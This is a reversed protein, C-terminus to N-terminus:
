RTRLSLDLIDRMRNNFEEQDQRMQNQKAELTNTRLSTGFVQSVWTTAVRQQYRDENPFLRRFRGFIPMMQDMIYIDHDRMKWDGKRNKQAKGAAGLADMLFPTGTYVPPPQQYRGTFPLDAFIQKGSWIEIPLKVTPAAGESFARLPSTPEKTYRMLDRFPLDPVWYVQNGGSKIPLRVGWGELFYDPVVGEQDSQLEMEGKLQMLRSWATPRRGLSEVLVPIINKQWRWFPIARRMNRETRTLGSPTYDFHYKLIQTFADDISGGKQMVDMGLATRLVMEVQENATRLGYTVAFESSLPNLRGITRQRGRINVRAMKQFSELSTDIEGAVQGGRGAGSQTLENFLEWDDANAKRLAPRGFNGKLRTSQGSKATKEALRRAGLLVDGNGERFALKHMAWVKGHMGMEVGAIQTNLWVGGMFNRASFGGPSSIAQAKWWSLFQDYKAWFDKLAGESNIRYLSHFVAAMLEADEANDAVFQYGSTGWERATLETYKSQFGKLMRHKNFMEIAQQHSEVSTMAKTLGVDSLNMIEIDANMKAISAEVALLEKETRSLTAFNEILEDNIKEANALEIKIADQIQALRSSKGVVGEDLAATVQPAKSPKPPGAVGTPMPDTRRIFRPTEAEVVGGIQEFIRYLPNETLQASEIRIPEATPDPIKAERPVDQERVRRVKVPTGPDGPEEPRRPRKELPPKRKVDPPVKGALEPNKAVQEDTYVVRRGYYPRSHGAEQINLVGGSTRETKKGYRLAQLRNLLAEYAEYDRIPRDLFEALAGKSARDAQRLVLLRQQLAEKENTIAELGDELKQRFGVTNEMGMLQYDNFQRIHSLKEGWDRIEKKMIDTPDHGAFISLIGNIEQIEEDFGAMAKTAKNIAAVADQADQVAESIDEYLTHRTPTGTGPSRGASEVAKELKELANSLRKIEEIRKGYNSIKTVYPQLVTRIGVEASYIQKELSDIERMMSTIEDEIARAEATLNVVNQESASLPEEYRALLARKREAMSHANRLNILEKELAALEAGRFIEPDKFLVGSDQLHGIMHQRGAEDSMSRLYRSAVSIFDGDFIEVFEPGVKERGILKMQDRISVGTGTVSKLQQGMFHDTQGVQNIFQNDLQNHLQKNASFLREWTMNEADPMGLTKLQVRLWNLRNEALQRPTVYIRSQMSATKGGLPIPSRADGGGFMYQRGDDDLYRAAYLDDIFGRLQNEGRATQPTLENFQDRAGDWFARIKRHLEEQEAVPLRKVSEPINPNLSTDGIGMRRLVERTADDLGDLTDVYLPMEGFSMLDENNVGLRKGTLVVDELLPQVQTKFTSAVRIRGNNAKRMEIGTLVMDPNKSSLLKRIPQKTNLAADLTEIMGRQTMARMMRGPAPFIAQIASTGFPLVGNKAIADPIVGMFRKSQVPMSMATRAAAKTGEDLNKLYALDNRRMAAAADSIEKTSATVKLDGIYSPVQAARRTDLAATVRGGTLRNLPKEIIKRGVRGTGPLTTRFGLDIGIEELAERGAATGAGKAREVRVAADTLKKARESLEASTGGLDKVLKDVGAKDGAKTLDAIMDAGRRLETAKTTLSASIQGARAGRLVLGAGALYTLPDLAVDGIFGLGFDLWKNGTTGGWDELVEGFFMNDETQKWWDTVSFGEGQVLDGIEKVASVIAARPTDIIEILKGIPGLFGGGGEPKAIQYVQMQNPLSSQTPPATAALMEAMAARTPAPLHDFARATDVKPPTYRSNALPNKGEVAGAIKPYAM